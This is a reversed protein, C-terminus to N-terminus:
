PFRLTRQPQRHAARAQGGSVAWTREKDRLHLFPQAQVALHLPRQPHVHGGSRAGLTLLLQVRRRWGGGVGRGLVRLGWTHFLGRRGGAGQRRLWGFRLGRRRLLFRVALALWFRLLRGPGGWLMLLGLRGGRLLSLRRSVRPRLRSDRGRPSSWLLLGLLAECPLEEAKSRGEQGLRAREHGGLWLRGRWALRRRAFHRWFDDEAIGAFFSTGFGRPCLAPSTGCRGHLRALWLLTDLWLFHRFCLDRAGEALRLDVHARALGGVVVGACGAPLLDAVHTAEVGRRVQHLYPPQCPRTGELGLTPAREESLISFLHHM